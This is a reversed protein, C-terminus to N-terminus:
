LITHGSQDVLYHNALAGSDAEASRDDLEAFSSTSTAALVKPAVEPRADTPRNLTDRRRRLRLNTDSLRLGAASWRKDAVVPDFGLLADALRIRQRFGGRRPSDDSAVRTMPEYTRDAVERSPGYTRLSSPM